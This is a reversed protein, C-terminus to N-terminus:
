TLPQVPAAIAARGAFRRQAFRQSRRNQLTHAPGVEGHAARWQEVRQATRAGQDDFGGQNRSVYRRTQLTVVVTKHSPTLMIRRNPMPQAIHRSQTGSGAQRTAAFVRCFETNQQAAPIAICAGNCLRLPISLAGTNRLNNGEFYTLKPIRPWVSHAVVRGTVRVAGVARRQGAQQDGVRRVTLAQAFDLSCAGHM